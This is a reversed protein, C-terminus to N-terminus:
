KKISSFTLVEWYSRIAAKVKGSPTTITVKPYAYRAGYNEYEYGNSSEIDDITDIEVKITDKSTSKEKLFQLLKGYFRESECLYEKNSVWKSSRKQCLQAKYTDTPNIATVGRRTLLKNVAIFNKCQQLQSIEEVVDYDDYLMIGFCDRYGRPLSVKRTTYTIGQMNKIVKLILESAKNYGITKSEFRQGAVKTDYHDFKATNWCAGLRTESYDVSIRKNNKLGNKIATALAQEQLEM